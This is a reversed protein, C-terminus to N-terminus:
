GTKLISLSLHTQIYKFLRVMKSPLVRMLDWMPNLNRLNKVVQRLMIKGIAGQNLRMGSQIIRVMLGRDFEQGKNTFNGKGGLAQNLYNEFDKSVLGQASTTGKGANSKPRLKQMM